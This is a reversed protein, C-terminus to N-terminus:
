RQMAKLVFATTITRSGYSLVQQVQGKARGLQMQIFPCSEWGQPDAQQHLFQLAKAIKDAFSSQSRRSMSLGLLAIATTLSDSVSTLGWGGDALQHTQLFEVARDVTASTPHAIAFLRLCVYTGYYPGHYWTSQWSGDVQQHAELYRIGAEIVDSFRHPAYLVLAYLLNAMVEVDAGNGWAQDVWVQQLQQEPTRDTAPIIWTELGGDQTKGNHLLTQLPRECFQELATWCQMRILVQMVQALDDTDPPLEPLNLFYSWGGIGTSRQCSLLYDVEQRLCTQIQQPALDQADLLADAILARQFIDGIQQVVKASFGQERPFYMIHRAEQFGQEAAELLHFLAKRALKETLESQSHLIQM